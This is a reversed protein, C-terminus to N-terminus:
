EDSGRGMSKEHDELFRRITAYGDAWRKRADGVDEGQSKAVQDLRMAMYAAYMHIAIVAEVPMATETEELRELLPNMQEAVAPLLEVCKALRKLEDPSHENMM